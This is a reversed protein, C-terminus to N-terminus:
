SPASLRRIASRLAAAIIALLGNEVCIGCGSASTPLKATHTWASLCFESTSVPSRALTFLRATINLSKASRPTISGVDTM